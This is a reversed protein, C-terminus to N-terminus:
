VGPLVSLTIATTADLATWRHTVVLPVARWSTKPSRSIRCGKSMSKTLRATGAEAAQHCTPRCLQLDSEDTSALDLPIPPPHPSTVRLIYFVSDAPFSPRPHVTSDPERHSSPRCHDPGPGTPECGDLTAQVLTERRYTTFIAAGRVKIVPRYLHERRAMDVFM